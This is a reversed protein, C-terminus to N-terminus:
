LHVNNALQGNYRRGQKNWLQAYVRSFTVSSLMSFEFSGQNVLQNETWQIYSSQSQCTPTTPSCWICRHCSRRSAATM